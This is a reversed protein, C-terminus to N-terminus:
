ALDCYHTGSALTPWPPSRLFSYDEAWQTMKQKLTFEHSSRSLEAELNDRQRELERKREQYTKLQKRNLDSFALKSLHARVRNLKKFTKAAKLNETTMLAEQFHKQTELIVGKRKLWINFADKKASSQHSLYRSVCSLFVHVTLKRPSVFRLKQNESTFEMIEDIFKTDLRQARYMLDHAEAFRNQAAYSMAQNYLNISIDPHESGLFRERIELSKKLLPEASCYDGVSLYYHALNSLCVAVQPHDPGLTKKTIVLARKYLAKAKAGDGLFNYLGALNNLGLAL